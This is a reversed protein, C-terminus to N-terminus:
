RKGYIDFPFYKKNIEAYKGNERIQKIAANLKDKLADGKRVAIGIRDDSSVPDGKFECCTGEPGNVWTYQVGFDGLVADLRGNGLDAWAELQSPYAKLEADPYKSEVLQAAVTGQQVGITKGSFTALDLTADKPAVFILSNIYYPDTFDVKEAREPTISMSAILADFKDAQLAPLLGDWDQTVFECKAKMEDCLANAIDIDFGELKGDSTLNNFPPYAGETGVKITEQARAVGISLALLSAAMVARSISAKM